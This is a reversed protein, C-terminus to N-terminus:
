FKFKWSLAPIITYLKKQKVEVYLKKDEENQKINMFIYIPNHIMFMNYVSISFGNDKKYWYNLSFDTRNYDPMRASNYNGYEKVPTNNIFYWSSPLTYANGTAYVFVCSADWKENFAYSAVLSLDHRRDFKAPFYNGDNIENFKRESKGISYSIWGTLKGTNKKLLIEVGYARGKGSLTNDLYTHSPDSMIMQTYENLHNMSRYFIEGSLEYSNNFFSLYYGASFQNQTQRPLEKGAAVWFDLPLGISTPSLMNLYQSQRQYAMRFISNENIHYNLSFRPEIDFFQKSHSFLNMRIGLDAHLLSTIPLKITSYLSTEHAKIESVSNNKYVNSLNEIIFTQPKIKHFIYQMGTELPLDYLSFIYKNKYSFDQIESSLFIAMKSQNSSLENQYNSFYLQQSFLNENIKRDWKLSALKNKWNLVGNLSLDIDNIDFNDKSFFVNLSIKDKNTVDGLITLNTDYFDYNLEEVKNKAQNNITANMLPQIIWELYTKRGSLYAGFKKGIPIELTLQTALLGTNGTASFKKPVRKRTEVNIVSSLRGGYRAPIGSKILELSSIHGSNFLSFFGLLHGPMYLPVDDYLLLNQGADGGRVYTNTSADGPNQVGPTLDLLRLLDTGGSLSPLHQMSAPNFNIKGISLGTITKNKGGDIYVEELIYVTTDPKITEKQKEGTQASIHFCYFCTLM